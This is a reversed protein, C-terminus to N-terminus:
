VIKRTVYYQQAISLVNNTLWYLVLGAPFNIFIVTFILPMLMMIKAQSPDGPPPSLKQQLFMTAGMIVTLVPIGYPPAMFPITVDFRFLRDPSSLDNIWLMFPAHRLEISEYLMRYFAIFVPIQVVMPLCGSMPNVKYTKYLRMVEENMRKKDDKYKKRIDSMLPQLKKMEAMSRYSKNGLPWFIIKFLITLLIIAVGYNSVVNNYIKNMLWLCPKAIIDFFGFDIAKELDHGFAKLDSMRKPGMFLEFDFQRSGGPELAEGPHLYSVRLLDKEQEHSLRLETQVPDEPVMATMFYRDEIGTWQIEGPYVSKDDIDSVKIEELKNDISAFPGQFAFTRGDPPPNTMELFLDSPLSKESQNIINISLGIKYSDPYFRYRKELIFDEGAKWYFSLTRERDSVEMRDSDFDTTFIAESADPLGSGALRVLATGDRNEEPVLVRFSADDGPGEKYDKLVFFNVAAGKESIEARFLENEVTITNFRKAPIEHEDLQASDKAGSGSVQKDGARAPKENASEQQRTESQGPAEPQQDPREPVFFLEWLLFVMVTLVIALLLRLHEM